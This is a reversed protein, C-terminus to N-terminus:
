SLRRPGNGGIRPDLMALADKASGAAAALKDVNRQAVERLEAQKENWRDFLGIVTAEDGEAAFQDMGEVVHIKLSRDGTVM